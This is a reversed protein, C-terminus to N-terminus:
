SGTPSRVQPNGLTDDHKGINRLIYADAHIEITMRYSRDVRAEWVGPTGQIKKLHLSPHRPNEALLRIAKDAKKRLPDPLSRYAERFRGTLLFRL